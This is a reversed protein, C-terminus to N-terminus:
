PLHRGPRKPHPGTCRGHDHATVRYERENIAIAKCVFLHAYRGIFVRYVMSM